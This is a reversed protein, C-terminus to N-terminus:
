IGSGQYQFNFTITTGAQLNAGLDSLVGANAKYLTMVTGSALIEGIVGDGAVFGTPSSISVLFQTTSSRQAHGSNAFPLTLTVAGSPTSVSSITLQGTVQVLGNSVIYGLDYYGMTVSGVATTLAGSFTGQRPTNSIWTRPNGILSATNDINGIYSSQGMLGKQNIPDEYIPHYLQYTRCSVFDNGSIIGNAGTGDVPTNVPHVPSIGHDSAYLYLGSGDKTLNGIGANGTIIVHDSSLLFGIANNGRFPLIGTTGNYYNTDSYAMITSPAVGTLSYPVVEAWTTSPLNAATPLTPGTSVPSETFLYYTGSLNQYSYASPIRGWNTVVNGSGVTIYSNNHYVDIGDSGSNDVNNGDVVVWQSLEVRIGIGSTYRVTNAYIKGSGCGVVAIGDASACWDQVGANRYSQPGCTDVLNGIININQTRQADTFTTSPLRVYIVQQSYGGYIFENNQIYIDSSSFGNIDISGSSFKNFYCNEIHLDTTKISATTIARNKNALTQKYTGTSMAESSVTQSVSVTYTGLGGTGTGLATIKTGPAVGPGFVTQGISIVGFSAASVTLTSGSIAGTFEGDATPYNLSADFSLNKFKAGTWDGDSKHFIDYTGATTVWLTSRRYQGSHEVNNLPQIGGTSVSYDGAPYYLTGGAASLAIQALYIFNSIDASKDTKVGYFWTLDVFYKTLSLNGSGSRNFMPTYSPAWFNGSLNYNGLDIIGGEGLWPANLITAATLSVNVDLLAVLGASAADADCQSFTNGSNLYSELSLGGGQIRLWRGTVVGTATVIDVGNATATSTNNWRFKGINAVDAFAISPSAAGYGELTAIDATPQYYAKAM